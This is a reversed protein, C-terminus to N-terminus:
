VGVAEAERTTVWEWALVEDCFKLIREESAGRCGDFKGPYDPGSYREPSHFSVQGIRPIEVYLVWKNLPQDEDIKWGYGIGFKEGYNGVVTALAKLSQAKRQYALKQYEGCPGYKKARKSSKQARFLHMAIAGVSGRSLLSSYLQRTEAGNSGRYIAYPNM